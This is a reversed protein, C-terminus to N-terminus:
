GTASFLVRQGNFTGSYLCPEHVTPTLRIEHLIKDAHKEWLRPSEPHGQMASLVPIMHGDPIPDRKLHHVWWEHFVWDPKIFFPQQPPPAEAFANSVDAGFVLLNEAAAVAYFLCSRTQEVCNAYTEALVLVSGSRTSGDCVCRAKKRGDVAKINYTWVLHFIADGENTEVPDGFMGQSNYQNLQLFESDQWDPWDTQQILKRRTLKMAKTVCNLVDGDQILQYPHGSCLHAAVTTFDWCNNLQDHVAQTFPASSVIPLGDHSIDQRVIPHSFLLIVRSTGAHSLTAFAAQAEQITTMTHPGIKILWASKIRSRWRPIKACPTSKAIGGLFLRGDHQALCLGATRHKTLDFRRIDVEEEFADHYPDPSLYIMSIDQKGIMFEIVIDAAINSKTRHLHPYTDNTSLRAAAATCPQPLATERLPLPTLRCPLPATYKKFLTLGNGDPTLLPSPPYPADYFRMPAATLPSPANPLGDQPLMGDGDTDDDYELGMDYLLQAAPPCTPQLYWAEDFTAHHSTKVVGTNLDIYRVNQNTATYGLFIGTFDNHDLKARRDGARKVWVRSGFVRLCSLDPKHGFYCEFPTCKTESHVLRNHLYVCHQLANSWYKAPLRSGYLLSRVRAGFKDNYVEVAGNQSPTDSGTPESKYHNAGCIDLFAQSGALEGSQDTRIFGGDPLGHTKLFEDVINLPPSKSNTLFVWIYRSADDVILLYSTFGDHSYVVRDGGRTPLTLDSTSARLFGFDMYFCRKREPTRIASHQVAQKRIMAQEKFDIFRFPHYDFETPLGTANGPLHDLQYVGPSGLRLLWLESELQKSKTTPRYRSPQRLHSPPTPQAIRNVRLQCGPDITYTDSTCYYLGDVYELRLSMSLFGGASDFRISGPHSDKYGTQTWSTFVDSMAIVAQPSIITEVVNACYYCLQWYLTGDDLTLPTYGRKICCDDSSIADGAIAVSIPMPPIAEVNVLTSLDGTVCINAGGNILKAVM